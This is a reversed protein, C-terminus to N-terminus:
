SAYDDSDALLKTLKTAGGPVKTANAVKVIAGQVVLTTTTPPETTTTSSTTTVITSPVTVSEVTSATSEVTSATDDTTNLGSPTASPGSNAGGHGDSTATPDANSPLTHSTDTTCGMLLGGVTLAAAVLRITSAARRGITNHLM